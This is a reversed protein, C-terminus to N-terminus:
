AVDTFSYRMVAAPSPLPEAVVEAYLAAIVAREEQLVADLAAADARGAAVLRDRYLKLPDESERMRQREERSRYGDHDGEYHGRFRQCTAELLAPGRGARAHAAAAAFAEAVAEVDTGDVRRSWAGYAAAREAITPTAMVAEYPVSIAWRNNEVLLVLPLKWAAAINLCEHFAGANSGGEGTVGVAIQPRGEMAFAYAYGLAVPLSSGVIGTASFNRGPDFPHMHGGRGRCLGSEREFIEALLPKLPVGKAIAHLHNRHTSVLADATELSGIMGAAIAEQGIGTHLEGHLARAMMGRICAEEFFRMTAMARYRALPDPSPM